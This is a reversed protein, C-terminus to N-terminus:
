QITRVDEVETLRRILAIVEETMDIEEVEVMKGNVFTKQIQYFRTGDFCLEKSRIAERKEAIVAVSFAPFEINTGTEPGAPKGSGDEHRNQQYM